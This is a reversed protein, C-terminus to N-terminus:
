VITPRAPTFVALWELRLNDGLAPLRAGADATNSQGMAQVRVHHMAPKPLRPLMLSERESRALALWGGIAV